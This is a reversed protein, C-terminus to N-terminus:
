SIKIQNNMIMPLFFELQDNLIKNEKSNNFIMDIKSKVMIDFKKILEKEPILIPIDMVDKQNIGPQAASLGSSIIIRKVFDQDLWFYLYNQSIKENTRLIFVHSNICCEKYPYDNKFMSVRGLSLGDKYMLVDGSKVIGTRM